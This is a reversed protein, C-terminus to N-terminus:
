ASRRAVVFVREFPLVTGYPRKPYAERLASRYEAEFTPRLRDPLAQLYPRAGTGSIWRFVPDDGELIHLYTTSWVDLSWGPEALLALYTEASTGRAGDVDGVHTAFRPDAALEQLLRHSDGVFNNPVQFALVGGPAIHERLRRIVAHQDPVWQFAANSIVLDVPREPQWTALDDLVYTTRGDSAERQAQAIMEPSSDVGLIAADPWRGRLVASLHGPGCGLDAITRPEIPVRAVLDLFPRARDTAYELYTTPSWQPM